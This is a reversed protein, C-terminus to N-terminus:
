HRLFSATTTFVQADFNNSQDKGLDLLQKCEKFCVEIPWRNIYKKIITSSHLSTNTSLFAASKLEKKRKKGNTTNIEPECYGKSFVIVAEDNSKPLKVTVRMLLLGTRVDKKLGKKVKQYLESLTYKNGKYEYQVNNDKLRCIM